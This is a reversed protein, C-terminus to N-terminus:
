NFNLNFYKSMSQKNILVHCVKSLAILFPLLAEQIAGMVTSPIEIKKVWINKQAHYFFGNDVCLQGLGTNLSYYVAFYICGKHEKVDFVCTYLNYPQKISLSIFNPEFIYMAEITEFLDTFDYDVVKKYINVWMGQNSVINLASSAIFNNNSLLKEFLESLPPSDNSRQNIVKLV